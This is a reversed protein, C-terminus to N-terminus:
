LLQRHWSESAPREWTGSRIAGLREATTDFVITEPSAASRFDGRSVARVSGAERMFLRNADLIRVGLSQELSRLTGFMRDISCGSKDQRADAAVVLFSGEHIEAAARIPTGHTSWQDLFENVQRLLQEAAASDLSPSVGFIWVHADDTMADM